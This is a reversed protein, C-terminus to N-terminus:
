SEVEFGVMRRFAMAREDSSIFWWGRFVLRLAGSPDIVGFLGRLIATDEGNDEDSRSPRRCESSLGRDFVLVDCSSLSDCWLCGSDGVSRNMGLRLVM